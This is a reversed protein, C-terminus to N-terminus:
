KASAWILAEHMKQLPFNRFKGPIIYKFLDSYGQLGRQDSVIAIKHWKFFYKMGIKLNGCWLGAAFNAIDTELILILNIRRNKKSNEELLHTLLETYEQETVKEHAHIGTVHAPLDNIIRLM